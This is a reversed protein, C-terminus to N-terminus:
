NGLYEKINAEGEVYDVVKNNTFKILTPGNILLDDISQPNKNTEETTIYDKNFYLSMDVSYFPLKKEQSNYTQVTINFSEFLEEDTKDFYLVLYSKDNRNFSSGLLIEQFQLVTEDPTVDKNDGTIRMTILTFFGFLCAFFFVAILLKNFNENKLIKNKNKKINIKNQQKSNKSM